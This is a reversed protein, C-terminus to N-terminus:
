YRLALAFFMNFSVMGAGLCKERDGEIASATLAVIPRDYHLLSRLRRTAEYGDMVPMQCDMIILDPWSLKNTEGGSPNSRDLDSNATDNQGAGLAKNNSSAASVYEVAEAGNRAAHVRQFGLRSLHTLIVKRNIENDEVFLIHLSSKQDPSLTRGVSSITKAEEPRNAPKSTLKPTQETVEPSLLAPALQLKVKALTGSGKSSELTVSGGMIEAM